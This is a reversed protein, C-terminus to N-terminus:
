IHTELIHVYIQNQNHFVQMCIDCKYEKNLQVTCNEQKNWSNKCTLQNEKPPLLTPTQSVSKKNYYRLHITLNSSVPFWNGCFHCRFPKEGVHTKEHELYVTYNSFTLPCYQCKFNNLGVHWKYHQHLKHFSTFKLLPCIDCKLNQKEFRLVVDQLTKSSLKSCTDCSYKSYDEQHNEFIHSIIESRKHFVNSCRSCEYNKSLNNIKNIHESGNSKSNLHKQHVNSCNISKSNRIRKHATFSSQKSYQKNCKDCNYQKNKYHNYSHVKLISSKTFSKDCIQCKWRKKICHINECTFNFLIDHGICNKKINLVQQRKLFNKNQIICQCTRCKYTEKINNGNNTPLNNIGNHHKSSNSKLYIYRKPFCLSRKFHEIILNRKHFIKGCIDCDYRNVHKVRQEQNSKYDYNINLEPQYDTSESDDHEVKKIKHNKLPLLLDAISSLPLENDLYSFNLFFLLLINLIILKHLTKSKLIQKSIWILFLGNSPIM